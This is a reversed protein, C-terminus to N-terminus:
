KRELKEIRSNLEKITEVLYGILGSYNVSKLGNNSSVLHPLVKEIDQAVLGASKQKTDIWNFEVGNISKIFSLPDQITNLNEKLTIDSLSNFVTANLTGTSPNFFLKTSAVNASTATGSTSTLFPVYRTDNTSTDDTISIGSEIDINTTFTGGDATTIVLNSNASYFDLTNVGAVNSNAASTIRGQEDIVLVPVQSASGYTGATVTTNALRIDVTNSSSAISTNIGFSGTFALTETVLSVVDTGSDSSINLDSSVGVFSNATITDAQINGLVLSALNFTPDSPDINNNALFHDVYGDFLYYKEDAAHRILGTHLQNSGYHGTFGIDLTNAVNNNALLIIPDDVRFQLVDLTTTNGTVTLNGAIEVSNNFLALDNVTLTNATINNSVGSSDATFVEQSGIIIKVLDNEVKFEANGLFITNGSLYLDNWRNTNSGLNYTVNSSPILNSSVQGTSLLNINLNANGNELSNVKSIVDNTRIRFEDFTNTLAVNAISM